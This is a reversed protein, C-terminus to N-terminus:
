MHQRRRKAQRRQEGRRREGEADHLPSTGGIEDPEPQLLDEAAGLLDIGVAVQRAVAMGPQEAVAEDDVQQVGLRSEEEEGEQRLEDLGLAAMEDRLDDEEAQQEGQEAEDGVAAVREQGAGGALPQTAVLAIE